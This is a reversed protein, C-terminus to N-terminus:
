RPPNWQVKMVRKEPDWDLLAAPLRAPHAAEPSSDRVVPMGFRNYIFEVAAACGAAGYQVPSGRYIITAAEPHAHAFRAVADFWERATQDRALLAQQQEAIPPPDFPFVLALFLMTPVRGMPEAFGSFAIALGAFPAYCYASFIRGPLFLIPLLLLATMGLGFWARRNRAFCAAVPLLFGAFPLLLAQGAYFASTKALADLTFHFTYDNNLRRNPNFLLGQIGFSASVAFFPALRLWQREGLLFEYLLLVAPLMVALEKSKYALWFAAFSLIWRRQSYFLVCLLSFSACLVDFVYMPKWVAEWYAPHLAFVACAAGAAFRSAGLRRSVVWILWANLLHIAQVVAVYKAFDAGFRLAGERFFFHGTPRFNNAQFLPSLFGEVWVGASVARTWNLPEIDDNDFFGGYAGHNAALFVAALLLFWLLGSRRSM